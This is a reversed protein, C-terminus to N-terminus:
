GLSSNNRSNSNDAYYLAFVEDALIKLDDSEEQQAILDYISDVYDCDMTQVETNNLGEIFADLKDTRLKEEKQKIANFIEKADAVPVFYKEASRDETAFVYVCPKHKEQSINTRLLSGCNILTKDEFTDIFHKHNDGSVVLGFNNNKLVSNSRVFSDQKNWLKERKIIMRHTILINFNDEDKASIEPIDEGWGASYITVGDKRVKHNRQLCTVLGSTELIGLPINDVRMSHYRLDHQGPTTIIQIGYKRALFLFKRIVLYPTTDSDFFDGPQLIFECGEEVALAFIWEIKKEQTSLYNFDKRLKPRQFRLHWDGTCLLKM